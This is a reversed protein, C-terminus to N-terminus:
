KVYTRYYKKFESMPANEQILRRNIDEDNKIKDLEALVEDICDVPIVAIGSDDAVVLDGPEVRIDHLCIPGNIEVAEIHNKGSIVTQGSSWVPFDIEKITEIDRVAGNVIFGQLGLHQAIALTIGGSNSCDRNGATDSILIDGPETLFYIDRTCFYIPDKDQYAKYTTKRIPLNRITMAHGVIKKGPIVPKIYTSPICGRIGKKDLIDSVASGLDGYNKLQEIRERALRPIKIKSIREKPIAGWIRGKEMYEQYDKEVESNM